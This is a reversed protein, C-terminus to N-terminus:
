KKGENIELEWIAFDENYEFDLQWDYVKIKERQPFSVVHKRQDISLNIVSVKIDHKNYKM